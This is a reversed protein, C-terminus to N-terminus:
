KMWGKILKKLSDREQYNLNTYAKYYEFTEYLKFPYKDKLWPSLDWAYNNIVEPLDEKKTKKAIRIMYNSIVSNPKDIEDIHCKINRCYLDALKELNCM